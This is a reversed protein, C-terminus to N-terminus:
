CTAQYGLSIHPIFSLDRLFYTLKRFDALPRM